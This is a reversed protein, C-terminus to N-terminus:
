LTRGIDGRLLGHRRGKEERNKTKKKEGIKAKGWFEFPRRRCCRSPARLGILLFASACRPFSVPLRFPLTSFPTEPLVPPPPSPPRLIRTWLFLFWRQRGQRAPLCAFSRTCAHFLFFRQHFKCTRGLRRWKREVKEKSTEEGKGRWGQREKSKQRGADGTRRRRRRRRRRSVGKKAPTNALFSSLGPHGLFSALERCDAEVEKKNRIKGKPAAAIALTGLNEQESQPHAPPCAYSEKKMVLTTNIAQVYQSPRRFGKRNLRASDGPSRCRHSSRRKSRTM